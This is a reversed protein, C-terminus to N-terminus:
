CDSILLIQKTNWSNKFTTATTAHSCPLGVHNALYNHCVRLSFNNRNWPSISFSFISKIVVLNVINCLLILLFLKGDKSALLVGATRAHIRNGNVAYQLHCGKSFILSYLPVDWLPSELICVMEMCCVFWTGGGGIFSYM